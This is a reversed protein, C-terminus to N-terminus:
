YYKRCTSFVLFAHLNSLVIILSSNSLFFIIHEIVQTTKLKMSLIITITEIDDSLPPEVNRIESTLKSYLSRALGSIAPSQLWKELQSAVLKRVRSVTMFSPLTNLLKSNQKSKAVLRTVLAEAIMKHALVKNSGWFRRRYRKNRQKPRWWSDDDPCSNTSEMAKKDIHSNKKSKQKAGSLSSTVKVNTKMAKTHKTPSDSYKLVSGSSVELVCEEDGSDSESGSDIIANTTSSELHAPEHAPRDTSCTEDGACINKMLYSQFSVEFLSAAKSLDSIEKVDSSTTAKLNEVFSSCRDDDVWLRPGFSDEAFRYWCFCHSM